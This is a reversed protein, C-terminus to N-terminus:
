PLYFHACCKEMCAIINGDDRKTNGWMACMHESNNYTETPMGTIGAHKTSRGVMFM